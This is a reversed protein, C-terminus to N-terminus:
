VVMTPSFITKDRRAINLRCKNGCIYFVVVM